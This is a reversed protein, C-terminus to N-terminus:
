PINVFTKKNDVLIMAHDLKAKDLKFHRKIQGTLIDIIDMRIYGEVKFVIMSLCDHVDMSEISERVNHILGTILTCAM